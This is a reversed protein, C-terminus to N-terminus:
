LDGVSEPIYRGQPLDLDQTLLCLNDETDLRLSSSDYNVCDVTPSFIITVPPQVACCIYVYNPTTILM